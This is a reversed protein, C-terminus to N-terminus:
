VILPSLSLTNIDTSTWPASIFLLHSVEEGNELVRGVM